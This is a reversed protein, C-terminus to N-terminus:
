PDLLIRSELRERLRPGIGSVKELDAATRFPGHAARYEVIRAAITPGIGPLQELEAAGARNVAIKEGGAQGSAGAV